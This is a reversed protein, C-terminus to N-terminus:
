DNSIVKTNSCVMETASWSILGGDKADRLVSLLLCFDDHNLTIQYKIDM